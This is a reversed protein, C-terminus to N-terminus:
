FLSWCSIPQNEQEEKEKVFEDVDDFFDGVKDTTLQLGECPEPQPEAEYGTIVLSCSDSFWCWEGSEYTDECPDTGGAVHELDEEGLEAKKVTEATAATKARQKKALEVVVQLVEEKKLDFGLEKAIECYSKLSEEDNKPAKKSRALEKAKPDNLIAELFKEKQDMHMTRETQDHTQLIM